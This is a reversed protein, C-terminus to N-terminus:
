LEDVLQRPDLPRSMDLDFPGAFVHRFEAMKPLLTDHVQLFDLGPFHLDFVSCIYADDPFQGHETVSDHPGLCLLDFFLKCFGELFFQFSLGRRKENKGELEKLPQRFLPLFLREQGPM